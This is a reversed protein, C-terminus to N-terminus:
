HLMPLPRGSTVPTSHKSSKLVQSSLAMASRIYHQCCDQKSCFTPCSVELPEKWDINRHNRSMHIKICTHQKYARPFPILGLCRKATASVAICVTTIKAKCCKQSLKEGGEAGVQERGIVESQRQEGAAQRQAVFGSGIGVEDRLHGSYCFLNRVNPVFM